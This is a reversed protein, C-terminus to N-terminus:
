DADKEERLSRLWHEAERAAIERCGVGFAIALALAVAGLLLGFALTIIEDALGMQRVAIAAALVVIAVRATMALLSGQAGGRERVLNAALNAFYLGLGLIALGLAIHALFVTLGAILASVGAFGLLNAAEISALLLIAVLVLTGFIGSPRRAPDETEKWLGLQSLMSDCGVRNLVDGILRSVFQGLLFSVTLVLAAAFISPLAYLLKTLMASAPGSIAVFDLADFAAIAVPVLILVYVVFAVVSSLTQKGLVKELGARDGVQDLGATGLLGATVRQVIKAFFWGVAVVITAALVNPLVGLLKTLMGQVPALLGELALSDLVAPLFLVLVLWYVGTGVQKAVGTGRAEDGTSSSLREDVKAAELLQIAAFRLFRALVWGLFLIAAASVIRPAFEFVQGLMRNLPENIFRLGLTDFFAVLVLVLTLYYVGKSIVTETPLREAAQEGLAWKALKTDLQTRKLAAQVLGRIIVAAVWGLVLVFVAAVLNPLQTGTVKVFQDQFSSWM